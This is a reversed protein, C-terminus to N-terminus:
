IILSEVIKASNLVGPVGAGPHTGAGCLYLNNIRPDQNHYRFWASQTLTPQLSFGAGAHSHLTDRFYYPTVYHMAILSKRLDPLLRTELTALIHNAYQEYEQESPQWDLLHPVPVLVYFMEKGKEIAEMDTAKPRHLYFSFDEALEPKHFIRSLTQQYSAAFGVTHHAIDPYERNTTFYVVMLGMSTSHHQSRWKTMLAQRHKPILSRYLTTPDGNFIVKDTKYSTGDVCNVTTINNNDDFGFQEAKKGYHIRVGNREALSTLASVLQFTGGKVYHVGYRQELEHILLYIASAQMPNGGLLLPPTCLIHRLRESTIYHSVLKYVSQFGRLRMINPLQRLMVSINNFPTAALKEYGITFMIRIHQRLRLYGEMDEPFYQTIQQIFLAESGYDVHQGDAFQFRYWLPELPLLTLHEELRENCLEFLEHLLQPATIVTPGADIFYEGVRVRQARGGAEHCSELLTVDHGKAALRIAAALGGFGSGIIIIRM